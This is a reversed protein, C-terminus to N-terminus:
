PDFRYHKEELQDKYLVIYTLGNSHPNYVELNFQKSQYGAPCPEKHEKPTNTVREYAKAGACWKRNKGLRRYGWQEGLLM